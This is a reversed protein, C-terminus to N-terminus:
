RMGGSFFLVWILVILMVIGFFVDDADWGRQPGTGREM